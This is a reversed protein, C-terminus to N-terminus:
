RIGLSKLLNKGTHSGVLRLVAFCVLVSTIWLNIVTPWVMARFKEIASKM